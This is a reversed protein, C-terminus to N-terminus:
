LWMGRLLHKPTLGFATAFREVDGLLVRQKGAEINVISPRSLGTKSALDAQTMGFTCRIHEIRAGFLRYCPEIPKLTKM